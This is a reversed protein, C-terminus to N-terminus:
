RENEPVVGRVGGRDGSGARREGREAPLWEGGADTSKWRGLSDRNKRLTRVASDGWGTDAYKIGGMIWDEPVRPISGQPIEWLLLVAFYVIRCHACKVSCEPQTPTGHNPKLCRPCNWQLPGTIEGCWDDGTLVGFRNNYKAGHRELRSLKCNYPPVGHPERTLGIGVEYRKYCEVCQRRPKRWQIRGVTPRKCKPCLYFVSGLIRAILDPPKATQGARRARVPM